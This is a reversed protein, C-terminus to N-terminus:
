GANPVFLLKQVAAKKCVIQSPVNMSWERKMRPFQRSFLQLGVYGLALDHGQRATLLDFNFIDKVPKDYYYLFYKISTKM